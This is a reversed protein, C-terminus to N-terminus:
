EPFIEEGSQDGELLEVYWRANDAAPLGGKMGLREATERIFPPSVTNIRINRPLDKAAGRSFGVGFRVLNVQGMLKDNLTILFDNDSLETLPKM